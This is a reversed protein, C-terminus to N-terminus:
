CVEKFSVKFARWIRNIAESKRSEKSIEQFATKVDDQGSQLSIKFGAVIKEWCNKDAIM